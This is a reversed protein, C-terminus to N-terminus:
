KNDGTANGFTVEPFMFDTEAVTGTKLNNFKFKAGDPSRRVTDMVAIVDNLVLTSDPILDMKFVEPYKSKVQAAESALSRLDIKGDKAPIKSKEEIKGKHVVFEFGTKQSALLEIKVTGEGPDANIAEQVFDPLPTSIERIEVFAVSFLLMPIVSVIIDLLPALNLGFTSDDARTRRYRM